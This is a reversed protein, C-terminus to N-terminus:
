IRGSAVVSLSQLPVLTLSSQHMGSCLWSLRASTPLFRVTRIESAIVMWARRSIELVLVFSYHVFCSGVVLVSTSHNCFFPIYQWTSDPFIVFAGAYYFFVWNSALVWYYFLFTWYYPCLCYSPAPFSICSASMLYAPFTSLGNSLLTCICHPRKDRDTYVWPNATGAISSMPAVCDNILWLNAACNGAVTCVIAGRVTVSGVPFIIVVVDAICNSISFSSKM